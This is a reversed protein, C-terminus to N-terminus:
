GLQNIEIKYFIFYGEFIIVYEIFPFIIILMQFTSKKLDLLFMNKYYKKYRNWSYSPIRFIYGIYLTM